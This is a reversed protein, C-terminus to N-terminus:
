VGVSHVAFVTAVYLLLCTHIRCQFLAASTMVKAHKELHLNTSTITHNMAVMM